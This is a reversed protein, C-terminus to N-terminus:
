TSRSRRRGEHGDGALRAVVDAARAADRDVVVVRAGLAAFRECCAAGIGSAGGTVVACRGRLEPEQVPM